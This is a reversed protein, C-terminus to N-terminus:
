KWTAKVAHTMDLRQVFVIPEIDFADALLFVPMTEKWAVKVDCINQEVTLSVKFDYQGPKLKVGAQNASKIFTEEWATARGYRKEAALENCAIRTATKVEYSRSFPDLYTGVAVVAAFVVLLIVLTKIPGAAAVHM